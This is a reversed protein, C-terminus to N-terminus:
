LHVHNTGWSDAITVNQSSADDDTPHPPEETVTEM